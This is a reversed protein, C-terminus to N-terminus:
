DCLELVPKLVKGGKKKLKGGGSLWPSFCSVLLSPAFLISDGGDVPERRTAAGKVVRGRRKVAVGSTSRPAPAHVDVPLPAALKVARARACVCVCVCSGPRPRSCTARGGEGGGDRADEGRSGQSQPPRKRHAKSWSPKALAPNVYAPAPFAADGGARPRRWTMTDEFAAPGHRYKEKKDPDCDSPDPHREVPRPAPRLSPTDQKLQGRLGSRLRACPLVSAKADLGCSRTPVSANM